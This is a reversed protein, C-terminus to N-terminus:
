YSLVEQPLWTDGFKEQYSPNDFKVKYEPLSGSIGEGNLPYIQHIIDIRRDVITGSEAGSVCVWRCEVRDGINFAFTATAEKNLNISGHSVCKMEGGSVEELQEDNLENKKIEETMTIDEQKLENKKIEDTM